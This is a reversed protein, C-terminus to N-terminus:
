LYNSILIMSTIVILPIIILVIRKIEAKKTDASGIEKRLLMSSVLTIAMGIYVFVTSFFSVEKGFLVSLVATIIGIFEIILGTLINKDKIIM